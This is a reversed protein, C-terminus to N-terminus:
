DTELLTMYRAKGDKLLTELKNVLEESQEDMNDELAEYEEMSNCEYQEVFSNKKGKLEYITYRKKLVETFHKKMQTALRDYEERRAPDIEYSIQLIVKAM